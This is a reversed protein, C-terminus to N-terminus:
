HKCRAKEPTIKWAHLFEGDKIRYDYTVKGYKEVLVEVHVCVRSECLEECAM